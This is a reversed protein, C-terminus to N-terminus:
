LLDETHMQIRQRILDALSEADEFTEGFLLPKHSKRHLKYSKKTGSGSEQLPGRIENWRTVDVQKPHIELLGETCVLFSAPVKQAILDRILLCAGCGLLGIVTGPLSLMLREQLDPIHGGFVILYQYFFLAVVVLLFLVACLVTGLLVRRVVQYFHIWWPQMQYLAIPSGVRHQEALQSPITSLETRQKAEM